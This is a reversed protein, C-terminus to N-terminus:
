RAAIGNFGAAASLGSIDGVPTLTGDQNVGFVSITGIGSNLTYLFRGDSSIAIDLNTAGPTLTAVVTGPLATLSGDTGIAFGSITSTASNATYVFRGSPTVVQWCTAAGATPISSSIPSLTGDGALAYSSLASNNGQGAPGTESAIVTGNPAFVVAFLGPGVSSTVVVPALTGDTNVRFADIRDTAKETVLLIRGDPSFALSGARSSNVTLSATSNEIRKLHGSPELLFGTVNNGPGANLVFVLNGHQAVANPASGGSPVRDIPSLVPGHVRFVTIDGSGANVAFLLEGNESLTLSGQSELPDTVGGSGRGGTPFRHFEQLQGGSNPTFSIVENKEASNTMAYLAFSQTNSRGSQANSVLPFAATLALMAGLVLRATRAM